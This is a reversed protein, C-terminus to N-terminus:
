GESHFNNPTPLDQGKVQFGDLYTNFSNFQPDLTSLPNRFDGGDGGVVINPGTDVVIM